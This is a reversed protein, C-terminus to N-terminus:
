TYIDPSSISAIQSLIPSVSDAENIEQKEGTMLRLLAEKKLLDDLTSTFDKLERLIAQDVRKNIQAVYEGLHLILSTTLKDRLRLIQPLPNQASMSINQKREPAWDFFQGSEHKEDKHALPFIGNADIPKDDKFTKTIIYEQWKKPAYTDFFDGFLDAEDKGRKDRIDQEMTENLNEDFYKIEPVLKDSLQQLFNIIAQQIRELALDQLEKVTRDFVKYFDDSKTPINSKTRRKRRRPEDDEDDDEEQSVIIIGDQSNNFLLHWESWELIKYTIEDKIVDSIPVGKANKLPEKGLNDRMRNYTSKMNDLYSRLDILAQSEKTDIGLDSLIDKLQNQQQRLKEADKRTDEYLQRLSHEAVHNLILERLKPIGGQQAFYGLQKGLSSDPDAKLLVESLSQWKDRMLKSQQLGIDTQGEFRARFETSGVKVAGSNKALDALGILQDLLVIRDQQSTLASAQDIIAKLGSLQQFVTKEALSDNAASKILEDIKQESEISLQNFRGVGVLIFDKLPQKPRKKQIMTFIESVSRSEPTRGNLLILITQVKELERLSVFTDRVGSHAAGLGPFDLLIFKATDQTTGLNWIEKSIKVDINVRRILSFTNQLLEVSPRNKNVTVKSIAPIEEFKTDLTVVSMSTLKLGERATAHTIKLSQGCLDAGYDVYTRIFIILEGLLYHLEQNQTQNWAEKCWDEYPNLTDRNLTELDVQPLAPLESLQAWEKPKELMFELCQKVEAHDLYEVIFNDFETTKLEEQQLLHIATVNGTTPIESVPLADAYGILNGILLTKGSSFEGMVAIKVPSSALKVTNEAADQLSKLCDKVKPNDLTENASSQYPELSKVVRLVSEGYEKYKYLNELIPNEFKFKKPARKQRRLISLILEKGERESRRKRKPLNELQSIALEKNDLVWNLIGRSYVLLPQYDKLPEALTEIISALRMLEYKDQNQENYVKKLESALQRAAENPEVFALATWQQVQALDREYPDNSELKQKIYAQLFYSLETLRQQGFRSDNKLRKLLETRVAGDMEYLEYGVEDVLTSLLVNAVAVWPINLANGDIDQKFNAWLRYLLDPTLAISFAAHYALILIDKGFRDEFYKIRRLAIESSM